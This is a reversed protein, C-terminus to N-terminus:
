QGKASIWGTIFIDAEPQWCIVGEGLVVQTLLDPVNSPVQYLFYLEYVAEGM